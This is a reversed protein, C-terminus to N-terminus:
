QLAYCAVPDLKAECTCLVFSRCELPSRPAGCVIKYPFPTSTTGWQQALACCTEKKYWPRLIAYSMRM